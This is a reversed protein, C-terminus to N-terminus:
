NWPGNQNRRRTGNGMRMAEGYQRSQLRDDMQDMLAEWEQAVVQAQNFNDSAELARRYMGLVMLEAFEDPVDVLDTAATIVSPNKLYRLRATYSQDPAAPGVIIKSGFVMWVDPTTKTLATPDPWERDFSEYPIYRLRKAYSDPDTITLNIAAQYDTPMDYDTTGLVLSLTTTKEMFRWRRNNCIEKNAEDAFQILKTSDYSTRNLKVRTRAQYTAVTYTNAM